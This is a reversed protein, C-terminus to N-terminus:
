QQKLIKVLDINLYLNEKGVKELKLVGIAELKKLHSSATQRVVGLKDELFNSTCYPQQYLVEVLEKKYIDPVNERVKDITVNLSDIILNVKTLTYDSTHYIADLMYLILNNWNGQETVERLCRYYNTKNQNIYRSLFLVPMDMLGKLVLYLVNLIRGTRGNGDGFPHISEFQYHIVAMKILPDIDAMDDNNIFDALNDLKDKIIEEGTPPTYIIEGTTDNKLTTGPIKRIGQNTQLIINNIEVIDNVSIFGRKGLNKFASYLAERYNLVEKTQKDTKYNKASIAKFLEDNTTIINEIESSAKAEQLAINNILIDQNPITVARGKLEALKAKSHILKKLIPVTELDCTPPLLPLNNYPDKPNFKNNTIM